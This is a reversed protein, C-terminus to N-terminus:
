DLNRSNEHVNSLIVSNSVASGLTEVVYIASDRLNDMTLWQMLCTLNFQLLNKLLNCLRIVGHVDYLALLHPRTLYSILLM